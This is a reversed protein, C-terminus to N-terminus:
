KQYHDTLTINNLISSILDIVRQHGVQETRLIAIYHYNKRQGTVCTDTDLRDIQEQLHKIETEEEELKVNLEKRLDTTM